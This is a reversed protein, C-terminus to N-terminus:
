CVDRRFIQIVSVLVVLIYLIYCALDGQKGDFPMRCIGCTDDKAEWRWTAVANWKKIKVKM